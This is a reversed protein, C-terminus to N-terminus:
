AITRSKLDVDGWFKWPLPTGVYYHLFIQKLCKTLPVKNPGIVRDKFKTAVMATKAKATAVRIADLEANGRKDERRKSKPM